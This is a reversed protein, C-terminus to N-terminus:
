GLDTECRRHSKGECSKQRRLDALERVRRMNRKRRGSVGHTIWHEERVIKSGLKHSAIEEEELIKDRWDEFRM